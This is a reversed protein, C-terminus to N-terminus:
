VQLESRQMRTTLIQKVAISDSTGLVLARFVTGHAGRGLEECKVWRQGCGFSGVEGDGGGGGKNEEESSSSTRTITADDAEAPVLAVADVAPGGEGAPSSSSDYHLSPPNYCSAAAAAEMM